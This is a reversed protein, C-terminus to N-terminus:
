PLYSTAPKINVVYNKETVLGNAQRPSGILSLDNIGTVAIPVELPVMHVVNSLQQINQRPSSLDRWTTILSGQQLKRCQSWFRM